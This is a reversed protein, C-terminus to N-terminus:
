RPIAFEAIGGDDATADSPTSPASSLAEAESSFVVPPDVMRRWRRAFANRLEDGVADEEERAAAAAERRERAAAELAMAVKASNVEQSRGRKQVVHLLQQGAIDAPEDEQPQPQPQQQPGSPTADEAERPRVVVAPTPDEVVELPQASGGAEIDSQRAKGKWRRAVLVAAQSAEVERERARARQEELLRDIRSAAAAEEGPKATEVQGRKRLVGQLENIMMGAHDPALKKAFLPALPPPPPLASSTPPPPPPPPAITPPAPCPAPPPPPPPPAISPTYCAESAKQLLIGAVLADQQKKVQALEDVVGTVDTQIRCMGERVEALDRMVERLMEMVLHPIAAEPAPAKADIPTALGQAPEPVV